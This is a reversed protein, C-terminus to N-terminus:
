TRGVTPYSMPEVTIETMRSVYTQYARRAEGHQGASQLAGTLAIHAHEDFADRELIRRIYRAAVEFDGEDSSARALARTVRIYAARAEERLPTSWDQYLDEELFEGAYLAEADELRAVDGGDLGAEADELFMTVDVDVNVLSIADADARVYRDPALVHEPDLVSRLTSLAVSLRNSVKAPETGPWLAEMLLERPVPRGRRTVLLKLLDRAKRSQWEALPVPSGRRLVLFGGLTQISVPNAHRPPLSALLGAARAAAEIRVGSARLRREARRAVSQAGKDDFMRALVLQVRATRFENGLTTWLSAADELIGRRRDPEDDTLARLELARALEARYQRRRASQEAEDAAEAAMARDGVALAVWGLDVRVSVEDLGTDERVAQEALHKATEPDEFAVTLALGSHTAPAEVVNGISEALAIWHEYSARALTLDGRERHADAIGRIYGGLRVKGFVDYFRGVREFSMIAEEYRGLHNLAEGQNTLLTPLPADASGHLEADDLARGLLELAEGTRGDGTLLAALNARSRMGLVVDEAREAHRIAHRYNETDSGHEGALQAVLGLAHHAHARARDDGSEVALELAEGARERADEIEGLVGHANSWRSLALSEAAPQTGDIRARALYELAQRANGEAYYTLAIAGALHPALRDEGKAARQFQARADTLNGVGIYAEGLTLATESDLEAPLMRAVGLVQEAAGASLAARGHGRLFSAIAEPDAAIELSRLAERARGRAAFWAAARAHIDRRNAETTSWAQTAFDRVLDHLTFWSGDGSSSAVLLGRRNLSWLVTAADELGLAEGLEVNFKQFEAAVALVHRVDAPERAFVEDM